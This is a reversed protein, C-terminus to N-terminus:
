LIWQLDWVVGRPLRFANTECYFDHALRQLTETNFDDLVINRREIKTCSLRHLSCHELKEAVIRRVTDSFGTADATKLILKPPGRYKSKM